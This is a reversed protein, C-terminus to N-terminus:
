SRKKTFLHINLNHNKYSTIKILNGSHDKISFISRIGNYALYKMASLPKKIILSTLDKMIENKM